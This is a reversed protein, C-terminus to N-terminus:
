LCGPGCAGRDHLSSGSLHRRCADRLMRSGDRDGRSLPFGRSDDRAELRYVHIAKIGLTKGTWALVHPPDVQQLTSIITGPGSKWLFTTGVALPGNLSASRVAPNWSPWAGIASIVQWVTGPEADVDIQESVVVPAKQNVEV